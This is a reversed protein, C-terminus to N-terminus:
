SCRRAIYIREREDAYLYVREWKRAEGKSVIILNVSSGLWKWVIRNVGPYQEWDSDDVTFSGNSRDLEVDDEPELELEPVELAEGDCAAPVVLLLLAVNTKPIDLEGKSSTNPTIQSSDGMMRRSQGGDHVGGMLGDCPIEGDALAQEGL